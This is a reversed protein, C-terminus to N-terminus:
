GRGRRQFETGQRLSASVRRTSSRNKTISATTQHLRKFISRPSCTGFRQPPSRPPARPLSARPMPPRPPHPPPPPLPLPLPLPPSCHLSFSLICPKHSRPHPRPSPASLALNIRFVSQFQSKKGVPSSVFISPLAFRSPKLPSM